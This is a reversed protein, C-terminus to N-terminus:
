PKNTEQTLHANANIYSNNKGPKEKANDCHPLTHKVCLPFCIFFKLGSNCGIRHWLGFRHTNNTNLYNINRAMHNTLFVLFEHFQFRQRRRNCMEQRRYKVSIAFVWPRQQFCTSNFITKLVSTSAKHYFNTFQQTKTKDSYSVTQSM